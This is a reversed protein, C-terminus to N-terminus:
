SIVFTALLTLCPVATFFWEYSLWDHTDTIVELAPFEVWMDVLTSYKLFVAVLSCFKFIEFFLYGWVRINSCSIIIVIRSEIIVATRQRQGILAESQWNYIILNVIDLISSFFDSYAELRILYWPSWSFRYAFTNHWSSTQNFLSVEHITWVIILLYFNAFHIFLTKKNQRVEPQHLNGVNKNRINLPVIIV